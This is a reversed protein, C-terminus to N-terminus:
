IKGIDVDGPVRAEYEDIYASIKFVANIDYSKVLGAFQSIIARKIDASSMSKVSNRYSTYLANQAQTTTGVSDSASQDDILSYTGGSDVGKSDSLTLSNGKRYVTDFVDPAEPDSYVITLTGDKLTWTGSRGPHEHLYEDYEHLGSDDISFDIEEESGDAPALWGGLLDRESMASAHPAVNPKSTQYLYAASLIALLSVAVIVAASVPKKNKM